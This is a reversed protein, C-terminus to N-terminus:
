VRTLALFREPLEDDGFRELTEGAGRGWLWLYLDGAPGRVAADGKAHGIEVVVEGDGFRLLWEGEADTTHLHLTGGAKAANRATRPVFVELSEAIGDVALSPDIPTVQGTAQEADVRHVTTEHAQRRFWFAATRDPGFTWVSTAPDIGRMTGVLAELGAEFWSLSEGDPPTEFTGRDMLRERLVKEAWRHTTSVHKLLEDVDWGPCSPIAATTDRRAAASLAHGEREIIGIWDM